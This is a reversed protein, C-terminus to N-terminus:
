ARLLIIWLSKFFPFALNGVVTSDMEIYMYMGLLDTCIGEENLVM